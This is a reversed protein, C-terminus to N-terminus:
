LSDVYKLYRIIEDLFAEGEPTLGGKAKSTRDTLRVPEGRQETLAKELAEIVLGIKRDSPLSEKAMEGRKVRKELADRLEKYSCAGRLRLIEGVSRFLRLYNQNRYWSLDPISGPSAPRSSASGYGELLSRLEVLGPGECEVIAHAVEPAADPGIWRLCSAAWQIAQPDHSTALLGALEPAAPLADQRAGALAIAANLQWAPNDSALMDRLTPMIADLDPGAMRVMGAAFYGLNSSARTVMLEFLEPLPLSDEHGMFSFLLPTDKVNGRDLRELLTPLAPRGIDGLTRMIAALLDPVTERDWLELLPVTAEAALERYNGLLEVASSRMGADEHEMLRILARVAKRPRKGM